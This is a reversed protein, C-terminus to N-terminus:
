KCGNWQSASVHISVLMFKALEHLTLLLVVHRGGFPQRKFNSNHHKRSYSVKRRTTWDSVIKSNVKINAGRSADVKTSEWPKGSYFQFLFLMNRSCQWIKKPSTQCTKLLFISLAECGVVKHSINSDWEMLIRLCPRKVLQGLVLRVVLWCLSWISVWLAAECWKSVALPGGNIIPGRCILVRNLIGCIMLQHLTGRPPTLGQVKRLGNFPKLDFCRSLLEVDVTSCVSM